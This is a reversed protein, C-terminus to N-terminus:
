GSRQADAALARARALQPHAEDVTNSLNAVAQEFADRARQADGLTQLTRGLLLWAHGTQASYPIGGQMSRCMELAKRADAEATTADGGLLEAEAKGLEASVTLTTNAEKELVHVFQTRAADFRGDDLDLRAQVLTRALWPPRDAPVGALAAALQDLYKRSAAHDHQQQAASALGYLGHARGMPNQKQEAIQLEQEYAARAEDYRGLAELARGRNGVSAPSPQGDPNEAKFAQLIDDYLELARKPAGAGDVVTAWNNRVTIANQSRDRGLERYKRMAEAFYRDADANRGNLHHGMAVAGLFLGEDAAYTRPSARFRALGEEADRYGNVGDHNDLAIMSRYLLCYAANHPDDDLHRLEASLTPVPTKEDGLNALVFAHVCNLQTRLAGDHSGAVLSLATNLLSEARTYDGLAGYRTAIMELVAARDEPSGSTDARALKEGRDLMADVTIPKDSEAAETIVTGLFETVAANRTALSLAHDREQAALHSQWFAFVLAACLGAIATGSASVALRHRDLFKRTRYLMAGCRARVPEQNLYRTLDDGFAAVTPYREHPDVRLAMSLIADLDGRLETRLSGTVLDSARPLRRDLAARIRDARSGSTPVPHGGTLLVYLLMGLQYVDTATSPIEGLLQEPAAYDPTLAAEELRTVTLHSSRPEGSLLKAIGFDLLKATGDRTVFVNSPKIDRHVILNAHAHAVAAV